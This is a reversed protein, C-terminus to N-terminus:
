GTRYPCHQTNAATAQELLIPCLSAKYGIVPFCVQNTYLLCLMVGYIYICLIEEQLMM